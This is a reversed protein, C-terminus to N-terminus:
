SWVEDQVLEKPSARDPDIPDSYMWMPRSREALPAVRHHFFTHFLRLGDLGHQVLKQLKAEIVELKNQQSATGWLWNDQRKSRWGTFPPFSAEAPNRIYFWEGHWGQNSDCPSYAPYAGSSSPKKQLAFGGVPTTRPLKGESM